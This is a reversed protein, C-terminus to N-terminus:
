AGPCPLAGVDDSHPLVLPDLRPHDQPIVGFMDHLAREYWFAGPVTPTLAPYHTTGAPLHADILDIGDTTAMLATVTMGKEPAGSGMLGAFRQGAEIRDGLEVRLWATDIPYTEDPYRM